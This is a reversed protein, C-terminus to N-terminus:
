LLIRVMRHSLVLVLGEGLTIDFRRSGLRGDSCRPQKGELVFALLFLFVRTCLMLILLDLAFLLLSLTV